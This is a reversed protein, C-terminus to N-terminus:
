SNQLMRKLIVLFDQFFTEEVEHVTIYGPTEFRGDSQCVFFPNILITM